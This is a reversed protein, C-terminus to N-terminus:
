LQCCLSEVGMPTIWEVGNISTHYYYANSYLGNLRNKDIKWLNIQQIKRDREREKRKRERGRERERKRKGKEKKTIQKKLTFSM